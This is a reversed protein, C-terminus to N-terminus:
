LQNFNTGARAHALVWPSEVKALAEASVHFYVTLSVTGVPVVARQHVFLRPFFCDSMATLSLFDLPRPPRDSTWQLSESSPAKSEASPEQSDASPEEFPCHNVDSIIPQNIARRDFPITNDLISPVKCLSPNVHNCPLLQIRHKM